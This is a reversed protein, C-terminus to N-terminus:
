SRKFSLLNGYLLLWLFRCRCRDFVMTIFDKSSTLMSYAFISTDSVSILIVAGIIQSFTGTFMRLADALM